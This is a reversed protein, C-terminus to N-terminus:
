SAIQVNIPPVVPQGLRMRQLRELQTMTRDISRELTVQYRMLLDTAYASPLFTSPRVKNREEREIEAREAILLRRCRWYSVALLDVLLEEVAGVPQLTERLGALLGEFENSSESGMLLVGSFIGHKVANLKSREKGLDTRPGTSTRKPTIAGDAQMELQRETRVSSQDNTEGDPRVEEYKSRLDQGGNTLTFHM